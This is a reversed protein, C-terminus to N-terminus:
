NIKKIEKKVGWAIHWVKVLTGSNDMEFEIQQDTGDAFFFKTESEPKLETDTGSAPHIYLNDNQVIIEVPFNVMYPPRTLPMMYEGAYKDLGANIMTEKHIYPMVTKKNLVISALADAIFDSHSENNSLVIATVDDDTYRIHMSIYGPYSGNHFIYNGFDNKGVRIGFGFRVFPFTKKEAQPSLMETQTTETLLSHNKLARDWKFLDGTTTVIMGEGTIGALYTSWDKELSDARIYKKLNNSYVFGLAYGSINKTSRPGNVVMTHNMGLPKFVKENMYTNYSQGSIKEIISALLNFGTGSYMMNEGAKFLVPPKERALLRILDDNSAIKNHDFFKSVLGFGDPVGSTHTLLQQVTINTYPLVPFFKRLTDTYSIMGKDKLLLIGMATFEKAISGCDFISNSDLKKRANYDVYGFSKKYIVTGNKSVLVNGNFGYLDTQAQMYTDFLSTNDQASLAIPLLLFLIIRKM